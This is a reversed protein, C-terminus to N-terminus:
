APTEEKEMRRTGNVAQSKVNKVNSRRGMILRLKRDECTTELAVDTFVVGKEVAQQFTAVAIALAKLGNLDLEIAVDHGDEQVDIDIM